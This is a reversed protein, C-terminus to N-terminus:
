YLTPIPGVKFWRTLALMLALIDKAGFVLLLISSFIAQPPLLEDLMPIITGGESVSFVM